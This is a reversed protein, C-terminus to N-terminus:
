NSNWYLIEIVIHETSLAPTLTKMGTCYGYSRVKSETAM